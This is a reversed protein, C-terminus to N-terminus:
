PNSPSAWREFLRRTEDDAPFFSEIRLEQLTVDHPTGLTALTTFLRLSTAGVRFHMTLAPAQPEAPVAIQSLAPLGPFALLRKLLAATEPTGDAIADARVSRLFYLAVEEWNALLSRLGDPALLLEAMNVPGAPAPPASPDSGGLFASLRQMGMNARLLNWTRDVLIAPFPEQQRLMFDLAQGIAQSEIAGLESQRWAPAYGAALLLANQERLPVELVAALRLVMERSPKTRGSELFSIHRQSVDAAGALDLQSLGRHARWWRLGDAFGQRTGV